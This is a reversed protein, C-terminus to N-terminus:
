CRNHTSSSEETGAATREEATLPALLPTATVKLQQPAEEFSATVPSRNSYTWEDATASRWCVAGTIPSTGPLGATNQQRDSNAGRMMM